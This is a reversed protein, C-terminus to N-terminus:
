HLRRARNAVAFARHLACLRQLHAYFRARAIALTYPDAAFAIRPSLAALRAIQVDDDAHALMRHEPTFAIVNINRDRHGGPFRRQSGPNLHRGDVATRLQLNRRSRLAPLLQTQAFFAYWRSCSLVFATILNHLDLDHDRFRM